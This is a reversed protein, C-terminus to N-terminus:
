SRSIATCEKKGATVTAKAGEKPSIAVCSENSSSWKITEKSNTLAFLTYSERPELSLAGPNIKIKAVEEMISGNGPKWEGNSDTIKILIKQPTPDPAVPKKSEGVSFSIRFIIYGFFCLLLLLLLILLWKKNSKKKEKRNRSKKNKAEENM